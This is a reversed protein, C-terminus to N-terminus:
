SFGHTFPTALIQPDMRAFKAAFALPQANLANRRSYLAAPVFPMAKGDDRQWM